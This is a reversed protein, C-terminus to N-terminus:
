TFSDLWLSLASILMMYGLAPVRYVRPLHPFLRAYVCAVCAGYALALLAIVWWAPSPSGRWIQIIYLAHGAAFSALGLPLGIRHRRCLLLTDGLWGMMLGAIVLVPLPADAVAFWALAFTLALLPMLMVKTVRRLRENKKAVATLHVAVDAAYLGASVWVFANPM